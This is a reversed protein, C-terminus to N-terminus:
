RENHNISDRIEQKLEEKLERWDEERFKDLNLRYLELITNIKTLNLEINKSLIEFNNLRNEHEKFKNKYELDKEEIKKFREEHITLAIEQVNLKSDVHIMKDNIKEINVTNQKSGEIEKQVNQGFTFIIVIAAFVAPIVSLLIYSFVKIIKEKNTVM